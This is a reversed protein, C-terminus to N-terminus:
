LPKNHASAFATRINHLATGMCDMAAIARGMDYKVDDDAKWVLSEVFLDMAGIITELAEAEGIWLRHDDILDKGYMKTYVKQRAVLPHSRKKDDKEKASSKGHEM